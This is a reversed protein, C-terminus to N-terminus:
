LNFKQDTTNNIMVFFSKAIDYYPLMENREFYDRLKLNANIDLNEYHSVDVDVHKYFNINKESIITSYPLFQDHVFQHCIMLTRAMEYIFKILKYQLIVMGRMIIVAQDLIPHIFNDRLYFSENKTSQPPDPFKVQVVDIITLQFSSSRVTMDQLNSVYLNFLYEGKVLYYTYIKNIKDNATISLNHKMKTVDYPTSAVRWQLHFPIGAEEYMTILPDVESANLTFSETGRPIFHGAIRAQTTALAVLLVFLISM